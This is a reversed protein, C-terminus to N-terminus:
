RCLDMIEDCISDIDKGTTQVIIDAAKEYFPLRKELLSNIKEEVNQVNLLPRDSGKTRKIIEETTAHLFIVTGKEKIEKPSVIEVIGGGTSIVNNKTEDIHLFLDKEIKRFHEEGNKEFIEVITKKTSNEILEDMEILNVGLKKSLSSGVTSKGSGMFGILVINSM